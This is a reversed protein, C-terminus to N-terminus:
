EYILAEAPDIKAAKLAPFLGALFGMIGLVVVVIALVLFSLVPEPKGMIKILFGPMPILRVLYVFVVAMVIGIAGGVVTAMLSESIYRFLIHRKTAGLAMQIGIQQTARRVAAYMVNAIGIGALLLTLGGIIGLFIQMNIFFNNTKEQEEAIDSFNVLSADSPDAGHNLAVIKQINAKTQLLVKFDKYSVAILDIQQPNNLLEYTSAPIWNLWEDPMDMGSMQPKKQMIGIIVFPHNDIYVTNGVPNEEPFLEDATKAGIVVVSGRKQMDLFSIFRQKSGVKINHIAAYEPTVARFNRYSKGGRYRLKTRFDYQVSVGAVNPLAAIAKLDKKTLKLPENASMGRYTKSTVGPYIALLRDGANAMTHGFNLRLGEGVALMIAISFTGWAIAIITLIARIKEYFLEQIVERLTIM